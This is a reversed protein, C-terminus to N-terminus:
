VMGKVLICFTETYKGEHLLFYLMEINMWEHKTRMTKVNHILQDPYFARIM